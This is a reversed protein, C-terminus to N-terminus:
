HCGEPRRVRSGIPCYPTGPRLPAVGRSYRRVGNPDPGSGTAVIDWQLGPNLPPWDPVATAQIKRMALGAALTPAILPGPLALRRTTRVQLTSPLDVSPPRSPRTRCCSIVSGRPSSRSTSAPPCYATYEPCHLGVSNDAEILYCRLYTNGMKTTTDEAQFHGSERITSTLGAHQALSAQDTFRQITGIEVLIGATLVAGLGSM